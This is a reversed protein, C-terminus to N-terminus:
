KTAEGSRGSLYTNLQEPTKAPKAAGPGSKGFSDFMAQRARSACGDLRVCDNANTAPDLAAVEARATMVAARDMLTRQLLTPKHALERQFARQLARVRRSQPTSAASMGAPKAHTRADM